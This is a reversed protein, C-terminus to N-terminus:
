KQKAKGRPTVRRTCRLVCAGMPPIRLHIQENNQIDKFSRFSTGENTVGSGGYKVADSNFIEEYFGAFPLKLAYDEYAVPTFNIIAILEKGNEAIRRFSIISRDNDDSDIWQFGDWSNDCQWLEPYKLYIYNLDSVYLQYKSHMDYDLMFWEVSNDHDWERFQAIENGMFNLKKGPMLMQYAYFVRDGAFKNWYDGPMKDIMSKKGHVVEDHSIPLIYRENFAYMMFFTLKDHHYKRYIPEKEVYYLTDNMWGMNWKMDFGLGDKEFGTVNPWASSEEAIVMVDPYERKITSNMKKFFAIAELCRNDGYINPTWTGPAREFDLYLMSSVADVRIGDAHYVDFWYIANSVLFSQIEERGVDFRRTGWGAQEQRDMGQYEYLPQGDFEYLGFADKPFHAPVWDLIVGIGASHMIDMFKMFDKPSGFRSTPAYYCGVQYGWSGDFPHEAVPLLEIHTYGMQKVYPALEYALEEYGYYSGDEHRKWSGLHVEYINMPQNYMGGEATKKRHNLWGRDHWEFGDIDCIVSATQPPCQMSFGYPDSKYLWKSGNRIKYKYCAGDWVYTVPLNLQWIGANSVREMLRGEDWGVFDGIVRVEDANPAWVRFVADEGERHFGMYRYVRCGTGQHFYFQEAKDDIRDLKLM